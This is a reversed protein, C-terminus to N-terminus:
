FRSASPTSTPCKTTGRDEDNLRVLHLCVELEIPIIWKWIGLLSHGCDPCEDAHLDTPRLNSPKVRFITGYNIWLQRFCSSRATFIARTPSKNTRYTAFIFECPPTPVRTFVRSDVLINGPELIYSIYPRRANYRDGADQAASDSTRPFFRRTDDAHKIAGM